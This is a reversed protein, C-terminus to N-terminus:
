GLIGAIAAAASSDDDSFLHAYVNLTISPSAHGLRRSVKVVDEKAAILASAHTHRLAHFGVRPLGLAKTARRWCRTVYHPSLPQAELDCFVLADEGPKGLGVMLRHRLQRARHERLMAVTAPPITITRVGSETKPAKFRLAGSDLEELSREVRVTGQDLNCDSWRLALLEGRRAGTALALHVLAHLEHGALRTLVERVESARLIEMRKKSAVKPQSVDACANSAVLNLEMAHKLAVGLTRHAHLVTKDALPKGGVGGSQRLLKHWRKIADRGLQQLIVNGLHPLIQNRLLQSYREKTKPAIQWGELWEVLYEGLTTKSPDVTSGTDRLRLLEVLKREADARKGRVTLTRTRRQGPVDSRVEYRIEWSAKGRNRIHGRSM